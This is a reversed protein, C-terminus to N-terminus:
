PTCAPAGRRGKGKLASLSPCLSPDLGSSTRDEQKKKKKGKEEGGLPSKGRSTIVSAFMENKGKKKKGKRSFPRSISLPRQDPRDRRRDKKKKKKKKGRAAIREKRGRKEKKKQARASSCRRPWRFPSKKKKEKEGALLGECVEV